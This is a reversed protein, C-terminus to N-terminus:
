LLWATDGIVDRTRAAARAAPTAITGTVSVSGAPWVQCDHCSASTCASARASAHADDGDAAEANAEALAPQERPEVELELAALEECHEARVARALACQDPDQEADELRRLPM